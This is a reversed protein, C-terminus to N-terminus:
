KVAELIFDKDDLLRVSAFKLAYGDEKFADLVINNDDKLIGSAFQL